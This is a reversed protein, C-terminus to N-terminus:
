SIRRRTSQVTILLTVALLFAGLSQHATKIWPFPMQWAMLGLLLQLTLISNLALSLPRTLPPPNASTWTRKLVLIAHVLVLFAGLFHFHLGKGTHRYIAGALLQLLIFATTTAALRYYKGEEKSLSSNTEFQPTCAFWALCVMWGFFIQGLCAHAVSTLAPLKLLVTVGGLVGQIIVLAVATWAARQLAQSAKMWWLLLALIVTLSGVFTAVMRHGHEYFVGGVMPPMWQGFSLPWDPVALGSGTSTVMGGAIVLFFTCAALFITYARLFFSSTSSTTSM